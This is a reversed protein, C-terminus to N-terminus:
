SNKVNLVHNNTILACLTDSIKCIFGTGIEKNKYIKCICNEM